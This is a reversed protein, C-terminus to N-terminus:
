GELRIITILKTNPIDGGIEIRFLNPNNSLLKQSFGYKEDSVIIMEGDESFKVEGLGIAIVKINHTQSFAYLQSPTAVEAKLKELTSMNEVVVRTQADRRFTEKFYGNAFGIATISIVCIILMSILGEILTYGNKM